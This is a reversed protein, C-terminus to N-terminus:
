GPGFDQGELCLQGQALGSAPRRIRPAVGFQEGQQAVRLAAALRARREVQDEFGLDADLAGLAHVVEPLAALGHRRGASPVFAVTAATLRQKM